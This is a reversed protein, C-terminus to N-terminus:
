RAVLLGVAEAVLCLLVGDWLRLLRLRSIGLAQRVAMERRREAARVLLLNAVNACALALVLAGVAFAVGTISLSESMAQGRAGPQRGQRIGGRGTPPYSSIGSRGTSLEPLDWQAFWSLCHAAPSGHEALLRMAAAVLVSSVMVASAPASTRRCSASRLVPASCFAMRLLALKELMAVSSLPTMWSNLTPASRISPYVAASTSLLIVGASM